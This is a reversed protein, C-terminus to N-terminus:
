LVFSKVTYSFLFYSWIRSYCIQFLFHKKFWIFSLNRHQSELGSYRTESGEEKMLAEWAEKMTTDIWKQRPHGQRRTISYKPLLSSSDFTAQFAPDSSNCHGARVIPGLLTVRRKKVLNTLQDISSIAHDEKLKRFVESNSNSRDIYTPPIGLIKRLGRMQFVDLEKMVAPPMQLTELRAWLGAQQCGSCQLCKGELKCVLHM